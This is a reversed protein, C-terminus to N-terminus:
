ISVLYKQNDVIIYLINLITYEKLVKNFKLNKFYLLEM